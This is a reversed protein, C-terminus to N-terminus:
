MNESILDSKGKNTKSSKKFPPVDRKQFNLPKTSSSSEDKLNFSNFMDQIPKKVENSSSDDKAKVFNSFKLEDHLDISNMSFSEQSDWDSSVAM